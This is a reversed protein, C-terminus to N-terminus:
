KEKKVTANSKDEKKDYKYYTFVNIGINVVAFCSAAIILPTRYYNVPQFTPPIQQQKISEYIAIGLFSYALAFPVSEVASVKIDQFLDRPTHTVSQYQPRYSYDASTTLSNYLTESDMKAEDEPSVQAPQSAQSPSGATQGPTASTSATKSPTLTSTAQSPQTPTSVAQSPQGSAGPLGPMGFGAGYVQAFFDAAALILILKKM